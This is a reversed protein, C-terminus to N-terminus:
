VNIVIGSKKRLITMGHCRPITVYEWETLNLESVPRYPGGNMWQREGGVANPNHVSRYHPQSNGYMLDHLLILDKPTTYKSIINLEKEVHNGDHWDDIYIINGDEGPSWLNPFDEELFNIADKKIFTWYDEWESPFTTFPKCQEIDVSILKSNILHCGFLFPFSSRATRVGLEFIQKPKMSVTLSFLTFIHEDIDQDNKLTLNMMKNFAEINDM